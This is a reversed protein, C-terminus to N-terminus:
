AGLLPNTWRLGPFRAFNHDASCLLLGHEVALAALDADPVLNGGGGASKLMQQLLSAHRETPSPIWVNPRDLWSEVREWAEDMGAVSRRYIRVNTVIRLFATLSSWPLGIRVNQSIQGDLWNRAKEHEACRTAAFVLLNADVLIV